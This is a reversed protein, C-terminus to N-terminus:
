DKSGAWFKWEGRLIPIIPSYDDTWLGVKDDRTLPIWRDNHDPKEEKDYRDADESILGLAEKNKAIAIWTAAYKGQQTLPEKKTNYGAGHMVRAYLGMERVLREVVPELDLYRNSIHVALIGGPALRDFYLQFAQKTLLHAPIADSSFADVFIMGYKKDHRELSIRADGMVFDLEVGQKVANDVYDFYKPPEVLRKVHTDIEFITMKQKPKGYATLSATGMGICGVATNAEPNDKNRANFANFMSGVPGKRHYYTLPSRGPYEMANAVEDGNTLQVAVAGMWNTSLMPLLTTAIDRRLRDKEQQGHVTTGHVLRVFERRIWARNFKIDGKQFSEVMYARRDDAKTRYIRTLFPEDDDDPKQKRLEETYVDKDDLNDPLLDNSIPEWQGYVEIKLRGFFSRDHLVFDAGEKRGERWDVVFSALWLAAVAAGFRIPREVFFYCLMAPVGFIVIQKVTERGINATRVMDGAFDRTVMSGLSLMAIMAVVLTGLGFMIHSKKENEPGHKNWYWIFAGALGMVPLLRIFAQLVALSKGASGSEGIMSRLTDDLMGTVVRMLGFAALSGGLLIGLLMQFTIGKDLLFVGIIAPVAFLLLSSLIYAGNSHLYEAIDAQYAQLFCCLAFIACPLIIDLSSTWASSRRAREDFLSPLLMCGIVLTIPYESTFTFFIPAFFANFLGGFMGGISMILYFNTLYKPKPRTRALEGHCVMTVVFFTSMHLLVQLGFKAPVHSTMMFAILLVMVPMLLVMLSHIGKPVKSFVIIFTILYLSLPIIWLLPISAMDTSVFTTVGLMLSSPVFALALWRLRLIRSPAFEIAEDGSARMAQAKQKLLSPPEPAPARSVVRACVAVLGVLIAYGIAWIWAQHILRLNPEVIAPYAVLALLSGFNSAAYLFYPDKASPHGTHAFWKQLLPASTSVVFFPLGIAVFLLVIVGFFPYEDGQPSLSKVIPIPSTEATVLAAVLLAGLASFMVAAHLSAQTKVELTSTSRHAYYYGLLLLAQYFVMCTNWVAPTGGLLPLVMKGIMPQVLFLLTASVFMTLAFLLPM